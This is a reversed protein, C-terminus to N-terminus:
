GGDRHTSEAVGHYGPSGCGAGAGLTGNTATQLWSAFRPESAVIGGGITGFQYNVSAGAAPASVFTNIGFLQLVNGNRVFSPGGSDGVAVLTESTNGTTPGGSSGNGTPGDFDYIYFRSTLGSSDITLQLADVVNTGTRKVARADHGGSDGIRSCNIKTENRTDLLM